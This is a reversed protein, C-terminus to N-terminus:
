YNTLFVLLLSYYRSINELISTIKMNQKRFCITVYAIDNLLATSVRHIHKNKDNYFLFNTATFTYSDASDLQSSFKDSFRETHIPEM